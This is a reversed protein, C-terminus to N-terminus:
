AARGQGARGQEVSEQVAGVGQRAVIVPATATAPATATDTAM